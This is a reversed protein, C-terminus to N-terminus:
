GGSTPPKITNEKRVQQPDLGNRRARYEVVGNEMTIWALSACMSRVPFKRVGKFAALERFEETDPFEEEGTLMKNFDRVLELAESLTKRRLLDTMISASSQSLACGRGVFKIEKVVEGDLRIFIEVDDGCSKHTGKSDIVADEIEGFNHPNKYHALVVPSYLERLSM